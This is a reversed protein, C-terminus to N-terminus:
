FASKYPPVVNEEVETQVTHLMNDWGIALTEFDFNLKAHRRNRVRVGDSDDALMADAVANAWNSQYVPDLWDGHIMVGRDGVTENLAAIPSTVIRMGAAQAEMASICSTESFWTPYAWVGSKLFERALEKQGIRGHNYVGISAKSDILRKLHAILRRQDDSVASKEWSDFGYYVHLEADPVRQRVIHWSDLAAQLGRDPSSSYIARHNNRSVGVDAFRELDIGNRTVLVQDPHVFQYLNLFYERHWQSLCLFKDIRLANKHTLTDGCCVDHIWCLNIKSKLGHEDNFVFARRSSIFIETDINRYKDHHLFEVGEYTGERGPCDGFLRVKHGMASLRRAMEWAMTESGGIGSKSITEPTWPEPGFGVYMSIDKPNKTKYVNDPVPVRPSPAEIIGVVSPLIPEPTPLTDVSDPPNSLYYDIKSRNQASISGISSLENLKSSISSKAMWEKYIKENVLLHSDTPNYKLGTSASELAEEVRGLKSLALNLYRHIEYNRDMPNIFLITDTLPLTLGLKGFHVCKEWLKMEVPGGQMAMHYYVRCLAFYSEFWGERIGLSKLAWELANKYDNLTMYTEVIKMCSMFREDDWGSLEIYRKHYKLAQEYNGVNGYELAIYYLSRVDTEGSKSVHEELIRLNRNNEFVKGSQARRHIMVLDNEKLTVTASSSPVVVEHVPNKWQFMNRPYFIRERYHRCTVNGNSDHAYEYPLIIMKPNPITSYKALYKPILHAGEVEDDADVWMVWDHSALDFSRQRAMSFDRILGDANNCATFVEFKDAYQKAIEPTKDTSGTDVVVIEDVYDRVSRLCNGIQGEENKCIIALTIPHEKSM